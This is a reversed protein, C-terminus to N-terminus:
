REGLFWLLSWLALSAIFAGALGLTRRRSTM